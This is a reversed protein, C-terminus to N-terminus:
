SLLDPTSQHAPAPSPTANLTSGFASVGDAFTWDFAHARRPRPHWRLGPPRLFVNPTRLPVRRPVSRGLPFSSFVAGIDPVHACTPGTATTARRAPTSTSPRAMRAVSVPTGSLRDAARLGARTSTPGAGPTRSSGPTPGTIVPRTDTISRGPTRIESREFPLYASHETFFSEAAGNDRGMATSRSKAAVFSIVSDGFRLSPAHNAEERRRRGRRSATPSKGGAPAIVADRPHSEPPNVNAGALPEPTTLVDFCASWDPERFGPPLRDFTDSIESTATRGARRLPGSITRAACPPANAEGQTLLGFAKPPPRAGLEDRQLAASSGLFVPGDGGVAREDIKGNQFFREGVDASRSLVSRRDVGFPTRCMCRRSM